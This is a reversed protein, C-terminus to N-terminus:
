ILKLNLVFFHYIRNKIIFIGSIVLIDMTWSKMNHDKLLNCEKMIFKSILNLYFDDFKFGFIKKDVKSTNRDTM